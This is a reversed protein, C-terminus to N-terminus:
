LSMGMCIDSLIREIANFKLKKQNGLQLLIIKGSIIRLSGTFFFKFFHSKGSYTSIPM